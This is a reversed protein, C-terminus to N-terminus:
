STETADYWFGWEDSLIKAIYSGDVGNKGFQDHVDHVIFLAILDIM